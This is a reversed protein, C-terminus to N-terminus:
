AYQETEKLFERAWDRHIADRPRAIEKAALKRMAEISAPKDGLEALLWETAANLARDSIVAPIASV